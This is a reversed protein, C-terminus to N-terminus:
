EHPEAIGQLWTQLTVLKDTTRQCEEAIEIIRDGSPAASGHDEAAADSSSTATPVTPVARPRFDLCVRQGALRTRLDNATQETEHLKVELSQQAADTLAKQVAAEREIEITRKAIAEAASAETDAVGRSYAASLEHQFWLYALGLVIAGALPKWFRKVLEWYIM